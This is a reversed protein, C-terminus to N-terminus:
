PSGGWRSGWLHPVTVGENIGPKWSTRCSWVFATGLTVSAAAPQLNDAPPYSLGPFSSPSEKPSQGLCLVWIEPTQESLLRESGSGRFGLQLFFIDHLPVFSGDRQKASKGLVLNSSGM